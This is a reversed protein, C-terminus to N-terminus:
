SLLSRWRGSHRRTTSKARQLMRSLSSLIDQGVEPKGYLLKRITPVSNPPAFRPNMRAEPNGRTPSTHADHPTRVLSREPDAPPRLELGSGARGQGNQEMTPLIPLRLVQARTTIHLFHLHSSSPPSLFFLTLQIRFFNGHSGISMLISDSQMITLSQQRFFPFKPIVTAPTPTRTM